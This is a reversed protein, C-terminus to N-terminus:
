KKDTETDTKIDIGFKFYSLAGSKDIVYFIFIFDVLNCLSINIYYDYYYNNFFLTTKYLHM